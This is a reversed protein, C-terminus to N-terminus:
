TVCSPWKKRGYNRQSKGPNERVESLKRQSRLTANQFFSLDGLQVQLTSSGKPVSLRDFNESM